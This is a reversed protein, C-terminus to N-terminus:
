PQGRLRSLLQAVWGTACLGAAASAILVLLLEWGQSVFTGGMNMLGVAIPVFFFPLHRALLTSSREFLREPVVRACLLGFLVLMGAVNGPLPIHLRAVILYGLKNMAWLGVLELVVLAWDKAGLRSRAPVQTVTPKPPAPALRDAISAPRSRVEAAGELAVVESV